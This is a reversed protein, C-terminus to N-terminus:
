RIRERFRLTLARLKYMASSMRIIDSDDVNDENCADGGMSISGERRAAKSRSASARMAIARGDKM